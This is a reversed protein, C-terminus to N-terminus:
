LLNGSGASPRRPAPPPAADMRAVEAPMELRVFTARAAQWLRAATAADGQAAAYGAWARQTRAGLGAFGGAECIRLSAAFCAAADYAGDGVAVVEGLAAAVQGLVGWAEALTTQRGQAQALAVARQAADRAEAARGQGLRAEALAQYTDPLFFTGGTAEAQAIVQRLDAEAAAYEGLAMRAVGLNSRHLMESDRDGIARAVDLAEQFYARAAAYDGRGDAAVGLNNLAVGVGRRDGRERQIALAQERYALAPGSQGLMGHVAGLLQLSLAREKRAQIHTSLALAAAGVALAAPDGLRHLAWGQYYLAEARETDAGAARAIEEARAASALSAPFDGQSDQIKSVGSWARAQAAADGAGAAAGALVEFAAIADSYRAQRVLMQGLSEYIALRTGRDGTAPWHALAKQFYDIATTPADTAQAQQGARAYWAAAPGGEGAREYHAAILGAVEGVREGSREVLWGAVAAHYVRRQRLLVSEYTVDHLLAHKFAYEQTGAFATTEQAFVLEKGALEDLAPALKPEMSGDGSDQAAVRDVAAAWFTAGVVAARQLTTREAGTLRDLRAQLVGTLTAPVRVGALREPAVAWAAVGTVIAGEDILMQILEEAYFPNGAARDVVLDELLPPVTPLKHLIARVLARSDAGTLPALALTSAGALTRGWAPRRELLEPRAPAVVLLALAPEWGALHELLDLSGDDAWHIDEVLLVAPQQHTLAAFLQGAYHFARGRIQRPDDLIERLYPSTTYDLGILHGLFHVQETAEPGLARYIGAELKARATVAADDDAIAFRFALLDRVLSYPLGQTEQRARGQFYWVREPLLDIGHDFEALLRSKGVGAEGLITVLRPTRETLVAALAAHLHGLEDARGILPPDIGEVGRNRVRFARPKARQVLYTQVPERKGKVPLPAQVVVDFVGRVHRYTDHSILIGGVPAAHELRSALNVTDGLATWEGTSGVSGLLVPGSNIGIRMQVIPPAGPKRTTALAILEAQMALAARIAREPDDEHATAAGFLAMVADGSHKDVRGGHATIAGDVRQWLANMLDRVEEADLTEAWATFGAVDAFLVTVFKRQEREPPAATLTALQARMPGLAADVVADGLLARQAELAAMAAELQEREAM